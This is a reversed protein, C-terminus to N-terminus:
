RPRRFLWDMFLYGFYTLLLGVFILFGAGILLRSIIKDLM